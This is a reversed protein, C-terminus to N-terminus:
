LAPCPVAQRKQGPLSISKNFYYIFSVEHAGGTFTMLNSLTFDYSYGITFKPHKYGVMAIIADINDVKVGTPREMLVPLGRFWAGLILPERTWYVGLDLQDAGYTSKYHLTFTVDQKLRPQSLDIKAGGYLAFKLPIKNVGGTLSNNPQMLHDMTMGFWYLPHYVLVSAVADVYKVNDVIRPEITPGVVQLTQRDFQDGFTLKNLDVTHQAYLFHVGPRFHWWQNIKLDYSYLLGFNTTSLGGVGAIDKLVMVGLGSKIKRLNFDGSVAFTTFQGKVVPWQERYTLSIRSNNLGTFSPSMLLPSSYLQSFQMQAKGNEFVMSLLIAMIVFLVNKKM